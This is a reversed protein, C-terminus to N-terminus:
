YEGRLLERVKCGVGLSLGDGRNQYRKAGIEAGDVQGKM